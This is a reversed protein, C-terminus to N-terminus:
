MADSDGTIYRAHPVEATEKHALVLYPATALFKEVDSILVKADGM